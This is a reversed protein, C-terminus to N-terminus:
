LDALRFIISPRFQSGVGPSTLSITRNYRKFLLYGTTTAQGEQVGANGGNYFFVQKCTVPWQRGNFFVTNYFRPERSLYRKSVSVPKYTKSYKADNKDLYDGYGAEEYLKSQPLFSTEKIPLGDKMYFADVLEQTVGTSGLGNKECRPVLRRDFADGSLGGWQNNATAWIIERNYKQFVNYVSADVDLEKNTSYEKYLEYRGGEAYDIFDKCAAIAKEWKASNYAPFLQKGDANKLELAEKFGGNFLPSAAYMWLKARVALAVGKTPWARYNQDDHFPEQELENASALLESDLYEVVEDVSNRPLDQDDKPEFSHDKVLVIPGYQEFLLYHYFARMFRVNAKMKNLEEELLQDGQTGETTIAHAKDLFINAQRICKYCDGYRHFLVTSANKDSNNYKASNGYGVVLEDCIGAWPNHFAGVSLSSLGSYDPICTFVNAYWRKTYGVNNFVQDTNQLGGAMQDSVALYDCSSVTELLVLLLIYIYNKMEIKKNNM